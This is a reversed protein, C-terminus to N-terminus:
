KPALIPAMTRLRASEDLGAWAYDGCTSQMDLWACVM